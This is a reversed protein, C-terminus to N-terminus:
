DDYSAGANLWSGYKDIDKQEWMGGLPMVAGNMGRLRDYIVETLATGPVKGSDVGELAARVQAPTSSAGDEFNPLHAYGAVHCNGCSSALLPAIESFKTAGGGGGEDQAEDESADTSDPSMDEEPPEGSTDGYPAGADIWSKIIDLQEQPLNGASPMPSNESSMRIWILSGDADGGVVLPGGTDSEVGDLAAKVQALTASTGGEIKPLFFSDATHCTDIACSTTLVQAVQVFQGNPGSMDTQSDQTSDMTPQVNNATSMLDPPVCAALLCTSVLVFALLKQSM